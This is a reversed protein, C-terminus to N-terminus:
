GQETSQKKLVSLIAEGHDNVQWRRVEHVLELESLDRPCSSAIQKLCKNSAVTFSNQTPDKQIVGNRWAKLAEFAREAARGRLRVPGSPEDNKKKKKKKRKPIPFDDELGEAVQEILAAGHRRRISSKSSMVKELEGVRTPSLKSVRVLIDDPIVKFVPRNSKRAQENRYLFLRRLVRLEQEGLAHAGRVNLYDDEDFVRGQWTKKELLVCEEELHPMRGRERLQRSMIERLAPLWHTDGRAYDIHEPKLPRLSWNHRQFAKELHIGFYAGILDGLGIKPLGLLQSAVLTDFVHRFEFGFDRKLCVIDYDAGHLIKVVEPDEFLPGLGSLDKVKLPDIVYDRHLDSIQILCVKEAYSYFSDSETDVGLVKAGALQALCADMAEQNEVMVLPTDDFM